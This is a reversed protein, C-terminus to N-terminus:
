THKRSVEVLAGLNDLLKDTVDAHRQQLTLIEALRKSNRDQLKFVLLLVFNGLLLALSVSINFITIRTIPADRSFESTLILIPGGFGLISEWKSKVFATLRSPSPILGVTPDQKYLEIQRMQRRHLYAVILAVSASVAIGFITILQTLTM